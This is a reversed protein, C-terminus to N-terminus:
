AVTAEAPWGDAGLRVADHRPWLRTAWTAGVDGIRGASPRGAWLRSSSTPVACAAVLQDHESAVGHDSAM